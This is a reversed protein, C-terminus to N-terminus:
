DHSIRKIIEAIRSKHDKPEPIDEFENLDELSEEPEKAKRKSMIHKIINIKKLSGESSKINTKKNASSRIAAAVAMAQATNM